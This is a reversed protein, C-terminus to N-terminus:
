GIPSFDPHEQRAETSQFQKLYRWLLKGVEPHISIEREERGKGFVRVDRDHV